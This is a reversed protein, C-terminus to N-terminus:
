SLVKVVGLSKSHTPKTQVIERVSADGGTRPHASYRKIGPLDKQKKIPLGIRAVHIKHNSRTKKPGSDTM